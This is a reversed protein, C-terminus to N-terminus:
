PGDRARSSGAHPAAWARACIVSGVAGSVQSSISSARWRMAPRTLTVGTRVLSVSSACGARPQKELALGELLAAGELCTAGGVRHKRQALVLRAAAYRRMGRAVMGGRQCARRAQAADAGVDHHGVVGRFGLTGRHAAVAALDAVARGRQRRALAGRALQDLAGSRGEHVRVVVEHHHGALGGDRGFKQRLHRVQVHDDARHAAAAEQTAARDRGLRQPRRDAHEADLRCAGVIRRARECAPVRCGLTCGCVMASPRRPASAGRVKASIWRRTSSMRVTESSAMMAAMRSSHSTSFIM